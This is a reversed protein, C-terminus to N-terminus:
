LAVERLLNDWDHVFRKIGFRELATRRAGEGLRRAEAPDALLARMRDVLTDVDAAAYGNEGNVIVTPM